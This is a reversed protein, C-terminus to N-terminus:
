LRVPLDHTRPHRRRGDTHSRLNARSNQEVNAAFDGANALELLGVSALISNKLSYQKALKYHGKQRIFNVCDPISEPTPALTPSKLDPEMESIKLPETM